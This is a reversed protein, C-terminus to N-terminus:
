GAGAEGRGREKGQTKSSAHLAGCRSDKKERGEKVGSFFFPFGM